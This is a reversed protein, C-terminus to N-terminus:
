GGMWDDQVIPHTVADDSGFWVDETMIVNGADTAATSRMLTDGNADTVETMEVSIETIGFKALAQIEGDEVKADGNDIWLELGKLEDGNLVGDGNTDFGALKEFGNSYKGGEDGFLRTGDMGKAANGDRNDVLLGDGAGDLWEITELNGDADIDFEVTAGLKAVDADRATSAGTVGIEGDGNLDFAIPSVRHIHSTDVIDVHHTDHGVVCDNSINGISLEFGEDYEIGAKSSHIFGDTTIKEKWATVEFTESMTQGAPIKVVITQDEVQGNKFTSYDWTARNPGVMPRDGERLTNGNPVRDEVYRNIFGFINAVSYYGGWMIDQQDVGSTNGSVFNGGKDNVNITIYTDEKAAKDLKVKFSQTQGEKMSEVGVITAQAPKEVDIYVKATDTAGNGDAIQYTFSDTGYFGNDAQFTFSGDPKLTLTGNDPSYQLSVTLDDGDHDIDNKLVNGTIKGDDDCAHLTAHDDKATPPSNKAEPADVHIHVTAMDTGGNGDDITYTFSDKGEYDGNPTYVYTGNANLTVSGATPGDKLAVTLNDGDPDSDNSLVNGTATKDAKTSVFDDNADPAQNKAEPADVHIHVTAMDTGGNGDDITYTFSDKGEYGGNPTYVYTGNANLTLSGATPGDKLAVTLNDGDPDSDNSLVNGTATKDAKTSVFDDNADPAQNKAEPADVHIHVTAMDTGGNGDDITYTFSDKGEYDGNPTYVYTGNANLTVSGATPGDKLAVTLNDGDPDSDNSLVNGTATKDAKTSVFDDNADPAQNKAEPADVHIHVTAMDTGGNGDDITYTFSDKGEYDGNPTYVYTGNANLTVSGATPGDKLAVTLNDGDPDSDNSLVNGTATKDAKTSVFDDNADPAQNKAEPADVHIHVTAMDTGGNGDDITYTFSDKGEYDGNPTYVYTGNANLTVSGATPGDKLAVTLNDGDPDSDNSLVNGTATKDAKTSVFDDNADPAQNKSQDDGVGGNPHLCFEGNPDHEVNGDNFKITTGADLIEFWDGRWVVIGNGDETPGWGYDAYSGIITFDGVSTNGRETSGGKSALHFGTDDHTVMGDDFIITTRADLIQFWDGRWVVIGNGDETPGWGYDAYSGIITFDGVSTNGRETSGGKSALHFGTDDHTVMGDDFIITTRADLIQFWDGRWVVIGNGDETPGWGYDAYSGIITFDGVSTNGRETSGGKSALHFGTDDHTVMGDDFIITTRADLIQFWDGKWVVIGNGDQTPGWGYNNSNGKITYPHMNVM